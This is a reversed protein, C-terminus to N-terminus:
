KTIIKVIERGKLLIDPEVDFISIVQMGYDKIVFAEEINEVLTDYVLEYGEGYLDLLQIEINDDKRNIRITTIDYM